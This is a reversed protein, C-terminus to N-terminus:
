NNNNNYQKEIFAVIRNHIEEKQDKTAGRFVHNIDRLPYFENNVKLSDLLEHLAVSQEFPVIQDATGHIILTPPIDKHVYTVPSYKKIFIQAKLTDKEPDFGFLHQAIDLHKRLIQPLKELRVNINEVTQMHFLKDLNTPGYLDVVYDIKAKLEATDAIDEPQAYASMMAIHAGASAGFLGINDIDFSYHNANEVVWNVTEFVDLICEPFPSKNRRGLSYNTSIVTYGKQRLLNISENFRNINVVGKGGGVWAGGHIFIVVPTKEFVLQTPLYIDLTLNEKYEQNFIVKGFIAPADNAIFFYLLGGIIVILIFLLAISLRKIKRGADKM